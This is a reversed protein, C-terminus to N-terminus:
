AQEDIMMWALSTANAGSGAASGFTLQPPDSGEESSASATAIVGEAGDVYLLVPNGSTWGARDVIEQLLATVDIEVWQGVDAATVSVVATATTRPRGHANASKLPGTAGSPWAAADEAAASVVGVATSSGGNSFGAMRLRLRAASITEGPAATLAFRFLAAGYINTAVLIIGGFVAETETDHFDGYSPGQAHSYYGDETLTAVPM